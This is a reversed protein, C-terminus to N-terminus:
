RGEAACAGATEHKKGGFEVDTQYRRSRYDHLRLSARDCNFETPTKEGRITLIAYQTDAIAQNVQPFVKGGVGNDSLPSDQGPLIAQTPLHLLLETLVPEARMAELRGLARVASLALVGANRDCSESISTLWPKRLLEVFGNLIELLATTARPERLYDLAEVVGVLSYTEYHYHEAVIRVLAARAETGGGLCLGGVHPRSMSFFGEYFRVTGSEIVAAVGKSSNLRGLAEAVAEFEYEKSGPRDNRLGKLAGLAEILPDVAETRGIDGLARAAAERVETQRDNLLRCLAPVANGTRLAGLAAAAEGRIKGSWHRTARILTKTDQGTVLDRVDPRLLTM